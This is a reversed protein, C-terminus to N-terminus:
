PSPMRIPDFTPGSPGTASHAFFGNLPASFVGSVVPNSPNGHHGDADIVSNIVGDDLTAAPGPTLNVLTPFGNVSTWDSAGTITMSEVALTAAQAPLCLTGLLTM